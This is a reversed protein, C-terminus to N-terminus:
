GVLDDRRAAGGAGASAVRLGAVRPGQMRRHWAPRAVAGPATDIAGRPEMMATWETWKRMVM